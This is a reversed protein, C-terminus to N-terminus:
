FLRRRRRPRTRMEVEADIPAIKIRLEEILKQIEEKEEDSIVNSHKELFEKGLSTVELKKRPNTELLGVYRLALTDNLIEKSSPFQGLMVYNYGLDYGKEKMYYLLYQLAKESISGLQSIIYLLKIKRHDKEIDNITIVHRTVIKLEKSRGTSPKSM